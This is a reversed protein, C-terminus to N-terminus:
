EGVVRSEKDLFLVVVFVVVLLAETNTTTNNRSLSDLFLVVVFVVVLLAETNDDM